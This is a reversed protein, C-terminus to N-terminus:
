EHCRDELEDFTLADDERDERAQEDAQLADYWGCSEPTDNPGSYDAPFADWGREYAAADGPSLFSRRRGCRAAYLVPPANM